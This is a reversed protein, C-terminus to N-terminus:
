LRQWKLERSVLDLFWPPRSLYHLDRLDGHKTTINITLSGLGAGNRDLPVVAEPGREGIM